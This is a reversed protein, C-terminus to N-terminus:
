ASAVIRSFHVLVALGIGVDAVVASLAVEFALNQFELGAEVEAVQSSDRPLDIMSLRFTELSIAMLSTWKSNESDVVPVIM